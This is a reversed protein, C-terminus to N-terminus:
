SAAPAIKREVVEDFDDLDLALSKAQVVMPVDMRQGARVFAVTVTAGVGAAQLVAMAQSVDTVATGNVALVEDGVVIAAKTASCAKDASEVVLGGNPGAHKQFGCFSVPRAKKTAAAGVGTCSGDEAVEASGKVQTDM